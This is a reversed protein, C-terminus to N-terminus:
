TAGSVSLTPHINTQLNGISRLPGMVSPMYYWAYIGPVDGITPVESWQYRTELMQASADTISQPEGSAMRKEADELTSGSMTM